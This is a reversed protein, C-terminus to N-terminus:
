KVFDEAQALAAGLGSVEKGGATALFPQGGGGGNIHKAIEKVINGAHLGKDAVLNKAISITISPKVADNTGVVIFANEIENTLDIANQKAANTDLNTKIALFNIGNVEKIAAKWTAKEAAAQQAVFKEVQKKLAANEDLLSQVAKVADNKTKLTVLVDNYNKEADKLANIATDATIAEIRRIGAATSSESLIKFLRIDATNKVHTGGCLEVSSGFRIVRVKDGYKEGFLAMAGEALAEDMSAERKEILPLAEAIKENVKQEVIAIEEETM